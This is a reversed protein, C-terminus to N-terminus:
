RHKGTDLEEEMVKETYMPASARSALHGLIKPRRDSPEIGQVLIWILGAHSALIDCNDREWSGMPPQGYGRLGQAVTSHRGPLSFNLISLLLKFRLTM